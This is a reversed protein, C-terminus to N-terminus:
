KILPPEKTAQKRDEDTLPPHYRNLAQPIGIRRLIHTGELTPIRGVYEIEDWNARYYCEGQGPVMTFAIVGWEKVETVQLCCCFFESVGKRNTVHVVDGPILKTPKM